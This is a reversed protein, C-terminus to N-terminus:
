MQFYERQIKEFWIQIPGRSIHELVLNEVQLISERYLTQTKWCYSCLLTRQMGGESGCFIMAVPPCVAKFMTVILPNTDVLTFLKMEGYEFVQAASAFEATSPTQILDQGVCEGDEAKHTSLESSYPSWRLRGLNIGSILTEIEGIEM